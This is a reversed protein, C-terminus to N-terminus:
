NKSGSILKIYSNLLGSAHNLMNKTESLINLFLISNRTNVQSTKIRNIQAVEMSNLLEFINNRIGALNEKDNEVSNNIIKAMLDLFNEIEKGLKALEDGQVNIFPKHSNSLHEFLPNLLLTLSNIM